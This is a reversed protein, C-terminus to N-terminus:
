TEARESMQSVGQLHQIRGAHHDPTGTDPAGQRPPSGWTPYPGAQDGKMTSAFCASGMIVIRPRGRQYGQLQRSIADYAREHSKFKEFRMRRFYRASNFDFVANVHKTVFEAHELFKTPDATRSTRLRLGAEFYRPLLVPQNTSNRERFKVASYERDKRMATKRNAGSEHYWRGKTWRIVNHRTREPPDPGNGKIHQYLDPVDDKPLNSLLANRGNVTGTLMPNIGLDESVTNCPDNIAAQLLADGRTKQAKDFDEEERRGTEVLDYYM